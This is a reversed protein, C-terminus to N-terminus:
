RKIIIVTLCVVIGLFVVAFCIDNVMGATM